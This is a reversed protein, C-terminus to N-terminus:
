LPPIFLPLHSISLILRLTQLGNGSRLAILFTKECLLLRRGALTGHFNFGDQLGNRGVREFQKFIDAGVSIILVTLLLRAILM